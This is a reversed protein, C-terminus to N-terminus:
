QACMRSVACAAGCHGGAGGVEEKGGAGRKGGGVKMGTVGRLGGCGRDGVVGSGGEGEGAPRHTHWDHRHVHAMIGGLRVHGGGRRGMDGVGRDRWGEGKGLGREGATRHTHWDHHHVHAVNDGWLGCAGREPGYIEWM